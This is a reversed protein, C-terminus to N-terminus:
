TDRLGAHQPLSNGNSIDKGSQLFFEHCQSHSLGGRIESQLRV